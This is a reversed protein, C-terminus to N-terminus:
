KSHMRLDNVGGRSEGGLVGKRYELTRALLINGAHSLRLSNQPISRSTDHCNEAYHENLLALDNHCRVFREVSQYISDLEDKEHLLHQKISLLAMLHDCWHDNAYLHLDHDGRVVASRVECATIEPNVLELSHTLYTMCALSM